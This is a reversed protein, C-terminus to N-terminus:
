MFIKYYNSVTNDWKCDVKYHGFLGCRTCQEKSWDTKPCWKHYHWSTKKCQVCKTYPNKKLEDTKSHVQIFEPIHQANIGKGFMYFNNQVNALKYCADEFQKNADFAKEISQKDDSKEYLYNMINNKTQNKQLDALILQLKGTPLFVNLLKTPILIGKKSQKTDSYVACGKLIAHLKQYSNKMSNIYNDEFQLKKM